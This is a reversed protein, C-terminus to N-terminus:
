EKFIYIKELLSEIFEKLEEKDYYMTMDDLVYVLSKELKDKYKM